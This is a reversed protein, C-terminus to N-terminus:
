DLQIIGRKVAATAAQTRDNVRLKTFVRELHHKVTSMSIGLNAVIEKNSLGSVIQALVETERPSLAEQARREDM